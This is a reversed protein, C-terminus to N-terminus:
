YQGWASYDDDAVWRPNVEKGCRCGISYDKYGPEHAITTYSCSSKQQPYLGGDFRGLVRGRRNERLDSVWEGLNGVMHHVGYKSVCATFEGNRALTAPMRNLRLDQMCDGWMNRTKRCDKGKYYWGKSSRTARLIPHDRFKNCKTPDTGQCAEVWEKHSLLRKGQKRCLSKCQFYNLGAYPYINLKLPDSSFEFRDICFRKQEPGERVLVMEPPCPKEEEWFDLYTCSSGFPVLLIWLRSPHPRIKRIM